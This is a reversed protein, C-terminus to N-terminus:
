IMRQPAHRSLPLNLAKLWSPQLLSDWELRCTPVKPLDKVAKTRWWWECNGTVSRRTLESM